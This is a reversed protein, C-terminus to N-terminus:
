NSNFSTDGFGALALARRSLAARAKTHEDAELARGHIGLPEWAGSAAAEPLGSDINEPLARVAGRLAHAVPAGGQGEM